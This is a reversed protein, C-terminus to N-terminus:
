DSIRVITEGRTMDMLMTKLKEFHEDPVEVRFRVGNAEHHESMKVAKCADM